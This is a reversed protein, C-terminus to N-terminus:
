AEVPIAVANTLLSVAPEVDALQAFELSLVASKEVFTLDAAVDVLTWPQLAADVADALQAFELSLVASKEVFTLDAAADALTWPRLAADMADAAQAFVHSCVM